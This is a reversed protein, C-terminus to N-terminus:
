ILTMLEKFAQNQTSIFKSVAQFMQEFMMLKAAEENVDVGSAYDRQTLLQNRVTSLAEGRAQRAAINQGIGTLLQKFYNDPTLGGLESSTSEVLDALRQLNRNDNLDPGISAAIQSPDDMIRDTVMISSADDGQFFTNMGLAALVGTEDSSAIANLTFTEGNVLSGPSLSISIGNEIEISDGPAYGNGVSVNTVVGSGDSVELFLDGSTSVDGTGNVTFTYTTNTDGDFVGSFTPSATGTLTSSDPTTSIAPVFDFTYGSDAIIQLKGSNNSASINAVANLATAVDQLTDTTPDLTIFQTRTTAGTATNTVRVYADGAEVGPSWQDIPDLSSSWGTLESFSGNSSVGQTHLQNVTDIVSKALADFSQKIDPIINNHLNFISGIKGGTVDTTFYNAGQPSIGIMNEGVLSVELPTSKTRVVIPMGWAEINVMGGGVNHTSIEMLESLKSIEEDRRDELLNTNGGTTEIDQIKGNYSAITELINNIEVTTAVAEQHLSNKQQHVFHALNRFGSAMANGMWAVQEMHAQSNPQAALESLANFYNDIAVGLGNDNLTGLAAELTRLAAIEHETQTQQPRQRLLEMELLGNIQRKIDTVEAGGGSGNMSNMPMPSVRIEQRHYGDTSANTINTGVIEIAQQAVRLGTLGISFNSM